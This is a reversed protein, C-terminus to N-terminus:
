GKGVLLWIVVILVLIFVWPVAARLAGKFLGRSDDAMPQRALLREAIGRMVDRNVTIDAGNFLSIRRVAQPEAALTASRLSPHQGSKTSM